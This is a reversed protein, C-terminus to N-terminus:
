GGLRARIVDLRRAAALGLVQRFLAADPPAAKPPAVPAAEPPASPAAGAETPLAPL